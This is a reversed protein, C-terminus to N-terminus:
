WWIIDNQNKNERQLAWAQAGNRNNNLELKCQTNFTTQPTLPRLFASHLGQRLVTQDPAIGWYRPAKVTVKTSLISRWYNKDEQM